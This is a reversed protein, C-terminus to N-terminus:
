GFSYLVIDRPLSIRKGHRIWISLSRCHIKWNVRWLMLHGIKLQCVFRKRVYECGYFLLKRDKIRRVIADPICGPAAVCNTPSDVALVPGSRTAGPAM